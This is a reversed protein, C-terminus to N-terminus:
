IPLTLAPALAPVASAALQGHWLQSLFTGLCLGPAPHPSSFESRGRTTSSLYYCNNAKRGRARSDIGAAKVQVLVAFAVRLPQGLVFRATRDDSTGRQCGWQRPPQGTHPCPQRPLFQSGHASGRRILSAPAGVLQREWRLQRTNCPVHVDVRCGGDVAGCHHTCAQPVRCWPSARPHQPHRQGQGQRGGETRMAPGWRRWQPPPSPPLQHARALTWQGARHRVGHLYPKGSPSPTWVWAKCPPLLM